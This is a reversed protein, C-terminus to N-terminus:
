PRLANVLEIYNQMAQQQTMGRLEKWSDWQIRKVPQTVPPRKGQADGQTAQKHFTYLKLMTLRDDKPLFAAVDQQAQQFDQEIPM